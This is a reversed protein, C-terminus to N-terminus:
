CVALPFHRKTEPDASRLKFDSSRQRGAATEARSGGPKRQLLAPEEDIRVLVNRSRLPSEAFCSSTETAAPGCLSPRCVCSSGPRSTRSPPGSTTGTPTCSEQGEEQSSFKRTVRQYPLCTVPLQLKTKLHPIILSRLSDPLASPDTAAVLSLFSHFLELKCLLSRAKPTGLVKKTVGHKYGNATVDLPQDAVNCWSIAAGCASIRGQGGRHQLETQNQSFPFELSSQLLLPLCVSFGAPLESVRSCRTVLARHMVEQSYPCKGVVVTDFYLAEELYHSLLAGQFGLVGWRALKDSCSLSLTPEGRGPKVRLVGTSHYGVGPRLPDAPSGPVCKAGTRHVDSQTSDGPKLESASAPVSAVGDPSKTRSEEEEEKSDEEALRPLKLNGGEGPEEAKRKLNWRGDTEGCSSVSTVPPCPQAQSDTMPIISADGCPTHSTFLLFSVGPQLRWKGRRDAPRFLSSRRGSVAGHLEQILYRICGRRAIVEAHSDNLVDGAASMAAKGVCKTGTGLSVVEMEVSDSNPRRTIRLVAALLSWERGPEPKGRRPLRRFREYCLEAVEDANIMNFLLFIM